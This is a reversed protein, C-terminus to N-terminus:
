SLMRSFYCSWRSRSYPEKLLRWHSLLNVRTAALQYEVTPNSKEKLYIHPKILLNTFLKDEQSQNKLAKNRSRAIILQIWTILTANRCIRIGHKVFAPPPKENEWFGYRLFPNGLRRLRVEFKPANWWATFPDERQERTPGM